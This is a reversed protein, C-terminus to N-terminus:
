CGATVAGEFRGVFNIKGYYVRMCTLVLLGKFCNLALDDVPGWKREGPEVPEGM